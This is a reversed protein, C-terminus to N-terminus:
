RQPSVDGGVSGVGMDAPGSGVGGRAPTLRRVTVRPAAQAAGIVTMPTAAGAYAADHTEGYRSLQPVVGYLLVVTPPVWVPRRWPGRWLPVPLATVTVKVLVTM